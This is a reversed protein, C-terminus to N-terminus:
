VATSRTGSDHTARKTGKKPGRKRAAMLRVQARLHETDVPAFILNGEPTSTTEIKVALFLVPCQCIRQLEPCDAFSPWQAVILDVGCYASYTIRYGWVTLRFAMEARRDENSDLLLIRKKPRM